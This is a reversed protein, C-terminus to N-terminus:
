FGTLNKGADVIVWDFFTIPLAEGASVGNTMSGTDPSNGSLGDV